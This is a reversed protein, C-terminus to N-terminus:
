QVILACLQIMEYFFVIILANRKVPNSFFIFGTCWLITGCLHNTDEIFYTMFIGLLQQLLNCLLSPQISLGRLKLCAVVNILSYKSVLVITYFYRTEQSPKITLILAEAAIIHM